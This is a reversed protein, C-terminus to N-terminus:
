EQSWLYKPFSARLAPDLSPAEDVGGLALAEEVSRAITVRARGTGEYYDVYKFAPEVESVVARAPIGLAEAVVVAHLSSGIVLKSRSIMSIVERFPSRPAISDVGAAERAIASPENMNSICLAEISPEDAADAVVAGYDLLLAPDGYVEPVTAGREALYQRTLPGRVAAFRLDGPVELELHKGNVGAGWVTAGEPLMHIVSGVVALSSRQTMARQPRLGEEELIQQVVMPGILDGFNNVRSGFPTRRTWRFLRRPRM